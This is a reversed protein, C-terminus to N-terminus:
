RATSNSLWPVTLAWHSHSMFYPTLAVKMALYTTVGTGRMSGVNMPFREDRFGGFITAECDCTLRDVLCRFHASVCDIVVVVSQLLTAARFLAKSFCSFM